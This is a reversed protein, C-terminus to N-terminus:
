REEAAAARHVMVQPFPIEIGREDFAAKIRRLYERRVGWQDSGRTKIRCRIMVASDGLNEVGSIEPPELIGPAFAPDAALEGGVERMVEMVQDVDERYAVGVDMVAYAYGQTRNTVTTILGNSIYHVHGSGDRLRVHRLTIDEVTGSLGAITVVDGTSMQREILLFLGSFYDKVLNQAGFGVAVGVIGAAGLIPAVSIGLESLVLVAAVLTVVVSVSYRFVRTLTEARKIQEPLTLRANLRGRVRRILRSALAALIWAALLIAIIRLLRIAAAGWGSDMFDGVAQWDM